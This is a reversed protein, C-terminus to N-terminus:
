GNIINNMNDMWWRTSITDAQRITSCEILISYIEMAKDLYTSCYVCGNTTTPIPNGTVCHPVTMGTLGLQVLYEGNGNDQLAIINGDTLTHTNHTTYAMILDEQHQDDGM